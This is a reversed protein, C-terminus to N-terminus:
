HSIMRDRDWMGTGAQPFSLFSCSCTLGVNVPRMDIRSTWTVDWHILSRRSTNEHKELIFHPTWHHALFLIWFEHSSTNSFDTGGSWWKDDNPLGRSALRHDKPCIKRDWGWVWSSNKYYKGIEPKIKKEMDPHRKLMEIAQEIRKTILKLHNQVSTRIRIAEEPDTDRMHEYHNVTHLRDKEETRIYQKLYSLVKSTQLISLVVYTWILLYKLCLLPIIKQVMQRFM